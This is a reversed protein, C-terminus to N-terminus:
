NFGNNPEIPDNNQNQTDETKIEQGSNLWTIGGIISLLGIGVTVVGYSSKKEEEIDEAPELEGKAENALKIREDVKNEFDKDSLLPTTEEETKPAEEKKIEELIELEAIKQEYEEKTITGDELEQKLETRTKM